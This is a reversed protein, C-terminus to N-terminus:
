QRYVLYCWAQWYKNAPSLPHLHVWFFFRVVAFLSVDRGKWQKIPFVTNCKNSSHTAKKILLPSIWLDTCIWAKSNLSHPSSIERDIFLNIYLLLWRWLICLSYWLTHGKTRIPVGGGGRGCALTSGGGWFFLVLPPHPVCEGGHTPTPSDWNPRSSFFRLLVKM